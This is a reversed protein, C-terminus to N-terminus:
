VRSGRAKSLQESSVSVFYGSPEGPIECHICSGINQARTQDPGARGGNM